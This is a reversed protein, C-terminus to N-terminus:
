NHNEAVNIDYGRNITKNREKETALREKLIEIENELRIIKEKDTEWSMYCGM